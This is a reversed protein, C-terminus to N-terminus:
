DGEHDCEKQWGKYLKGDYYLVHKPHVSKPNKPMPRHRTQLGCVQRFAVKSGAMNVEHYCGGVFPEETLGYTAADTGVLRALSVYEESDRLEGFRVSWIGRQQAWEVYAFLAVRDDIEGAIINCNLRVEIGRRRCEIVSWELTEEDIDIGTIAKNRSLDHHHISLNLGVIGDLTSAVYEPTLREGNSTVYLQKEDRTAKILPGLDPYLTPEGGLFIVHSEAAALIAQTMETVSAHYGPRYGDREVCWACRGHCEDTLMVELWNDYAGGCFNKPNPVM